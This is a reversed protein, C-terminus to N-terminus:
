MGAMFAVHDLCLCRVPKSLREVDTGYYRVGVALVSVFTPVDVGREGRPRVAITRLRGGRGGCTRVIEGSRVLCSLREARLPREVPRRTRASVVADGVDNDDDGGGGGGGGDDDDDGVVDGSGESGARCLSTSSM